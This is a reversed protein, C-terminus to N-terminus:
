VRVVFGLNSGPGQPQGADLPLIRFNCPAGSASSSFGGPLVLREADVSARGPLDQRAKCGQQDWVWAIAAAAEGSAAARWQTRAGSGRRKKRHSAM